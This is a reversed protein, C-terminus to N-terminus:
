KLFAVLLCGLAGLGGAAMLLGALKVLGLLAQPRALLLIGLGLVVVAALVTVFVTVRNVYKLFRRM